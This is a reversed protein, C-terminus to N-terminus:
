PTVAPLEAPAVTNLAKIERFTLTWVSSEYIKVWGSVLFLPAFVITFFFPLAIIIGVIWAVVGNIFLSTIGFAILGPIAAVLIAPVALIIYAPILLFFVIVTAIGVGIGVGLMILWMLAASKWNLKFMEWGKRFSDGVGTNELAAMRIFFQRLLGLLVGLVIMVFIFLFFCGISAIVSSAIAIRSGNVVSFFVAVGLGVMIAVFILFPVSTILDILWMRFARRSWGLKWGARFGVKEGSQEYGDVMRIVAAETPYRILAFIAGVVLIFLFFAVGIWVFTWVHQDPHQVLPELNQQFWQNLRQIDPNSSQNPITGNYGNNINGRLGSSGTSGSSGGAFIALLIGFIWLVKYSWLIHWARKLIKGFDIM